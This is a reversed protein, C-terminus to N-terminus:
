KIIEWAWNCHIIVHKYIYIISEKSFVILGGRLNREVERERKTASYKHNWFNQKTKKLKELLLYVNLLVGKKSKIIKAATVDFNM